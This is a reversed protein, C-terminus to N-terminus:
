LLSEERVKDGQERLFIRGTDGSDLPTAGSCLESILESMAQARLSTVALMESMLEAGRDGPTSLSKSCPVRSATTLPCSPLISHEM